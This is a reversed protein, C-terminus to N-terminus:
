PYPNVELVTSINGVVMGVYDEMSVSQFLAPNNLVAVYDNLGISIFYVGDLVIREAKEGGLNDRLNKVLSEFQKLQTKFDVVFGAFTEPLAGAGISAFNAGGVIEDNKLQLYPPILPLKAYEAIFDVMIRGDTIRGTPYHFFTEDYPSFNARFFATTNIYNNTGADNLADGFIFLAVDNQTQNIDCLTSLLLGTFITFFLIHVNPTSM